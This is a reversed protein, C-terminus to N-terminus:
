MVVSDTLRVTIYFVCLCFCQFYVCVCSFLMLSIREAICQVGVVSIEHQLQGLGTMNTLVQDHGELGRGLVAFPWPSVDSHCCKAPLGRAFHQLLSTLGQGYRVPWDTRTM